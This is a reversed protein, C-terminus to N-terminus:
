TLRRRNAEVADAVHRLAKMTALAPNKGFKGTIVARQLRTLAKAKETVMQRAERGGPDRGGVIKALRLVIVAPTEIALTWADLNANFWDFPRTKSSMDM